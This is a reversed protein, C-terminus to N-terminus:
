ANTNLKSFTGEKWAEFQISFMTNTITLDTCM